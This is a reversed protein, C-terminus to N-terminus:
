LVIKPSRNHFSFKGKKFYTEYKRSVEASQRKGNVVLINGDWEIEATEDKKAIGDKILEEIGNKMLQLEEQAAEMQRRADKMTEELNLSNKEM